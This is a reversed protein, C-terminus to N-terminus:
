SCGSPPAPVATFAAQGPAAAPGAPHAAPPQPEGAFGPPHSSAPREAKSPAMHAKRLFRREVLYWSAVGALVTPPFALAFLTFPSTYRNMSYIILQQIPFAYLYIGYSFDGYRAADRWRWDSTFALYLLLYTGLTPLTLLIGYPPTLAGVALGALALLARGRHPTFWERYLYAVVGALYLPLLRAWLSPVGFIVGLINGGPNLRFRQFLFSNVVAALFVALVVRRRRLLATLGLFAVGIYCWFEYTISWLSGNIAKPFPNTLFADPTTFGRLLLFRWVNDAVARWSFVQWGEPSALPAVVWVCVSVAVLYGPYIRYVRKKLFSGATKSREWSQAILYGSLVFFWDVALVGLTIQGSSFRSLPENAESGTALPFSHSFLVLLSLILRLADINNSRSEPAKLM